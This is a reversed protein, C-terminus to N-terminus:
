ILNRNNYISMTKPLGEALLMELADVIGDVLQPLGAAEDKGFNTLVYDAMDGHAPRGIGVRLRPYGGSGLMRISRACGTTAAM